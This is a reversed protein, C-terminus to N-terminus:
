FCGLSFEHGASQLIMEQQNNPLDRIKAIEVLHYFVSRTILGQLRGRLTMLPLPPADVKNAMQLPHDGDLRVWEDLNSRFHLGDDRQQYEVFTFPVVDVQIRGREAPTVLWYDGKDDRHMVSAFLKCLPKRGIPSNQYLWTGDTLIRIALDGCYNPMPFPLDVGILPVDAVINNPQNLGGGINKLANQAEQYERQPYTKNDSINPM